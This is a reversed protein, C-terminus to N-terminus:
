EEPQRLQGNVFVYGKNLFSVVDGEKVSGYKKGNVYIKKDSVILKLGECEFKFEGPADSHAGPEIPVYYKIGEHQILRGNKIDIPIIPAEAKKKEQCGTWIIPIVLLIIILIKKM